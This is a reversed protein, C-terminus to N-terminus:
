FEFKTDEFGKKFDSSSPNCKMGKAYWENALKYDAKSAAKDGSNGAARLHYCQAIWLIVTEDKCAGEKATCEYADKFYGLAKSYNKTCLNEGFYAFGLSRKALCNNPEIVLLKEFTAVGKVCDTKKFLYINGLRLLAGADAPVFELYKELYEAAVQAYDRSPDSNVPAASDAGADGMSDDGFLNEEDGGSKNQDLNLACYGANKYNAASASDIGMAIRKEYFELAQSYSRLNHYALAMNGVIRKQNPNIDISKQYFAVAQGFDPPKRYFSCDGLLQYTEETSASSVYDAPQRTLWDLHAKLLSDAREYQRTGWLAKGYMFYIDRPEYHIVNIVTDFYADAEEYASLNVYAMGIEFFARVTSSDPKAHSLEFYKKYSGITEKFRSAREERTRSSLGAKFYIGGARMWAPAFTSDKKLVIALKDIACNYDKLDLCAEAWHYYVESGATDYKLAKEYFGAALSSIGQKLNADGLNIYYEANTSDGILAQRFAKDADSWQQRAMMVQGFGNEFMHREAKAKKRGDDFIKQASDLKGLQLYAEGLGYLSEWHRSKKDLALKFQDRAEVFKGQKLYISGLTYYNIHYAKDIEIERNLAEIARATDGVKLLDAISQKLDQAVVSSSVVISIGVCLASVQRLLHRKLSNM